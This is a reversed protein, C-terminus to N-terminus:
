WHLIDFLSCQYFTQFFRGIFISIYVCRRNAKAKHHAPSRAVLPNQEQEGQPATNFCAHTQSTLNVTKSPFEIM